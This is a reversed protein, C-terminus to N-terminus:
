RPLRKGIERAAAVAAAGVAVIGLVEVVSFGYGDGQSYGYTGLWLVFLCGLVVGTALTWVLAAIMPRFREMRGTHGFRLGSM